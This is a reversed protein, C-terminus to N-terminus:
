LRSFLNLQSVRIFSQQAAELILTQQSLRTAAEAYDLDRLQSLVEKNVLDTDLHLERTSDLTNVRAGVKSVLDLVSTQANSLNDLTSATMAELEDRGENSGDYNAMVEKFRALTTLLGQRETSDIFFQDGPESTIGDVSTSGLMADIGLADAVAASGGSITLNRGDAISFGNQDVTIGLNALAQANGNAADNLVNSLELPTTINQDLVLTETHNGVTIRFVGNQVSFDGLNAASDAGFDISAPVASNGSVPSGIVRFSVGKLRIEDGSVYSQNQVIVRGTSREVATFNKGPPSIADDAQFSIVIDEPYFDDYEAQDYVVGVSIKAPPNSQNHASAATSVTNHVSKVDMFAKKGSDTASVFTNNAVKIRQQGEDGRYTFGTISNGEFPPQSSKYGGFIYDGNANKTNVLNLLEDIREEVESAMSQYENPTLTATNGAAVSLEQMRQIIRGVGNLISEELVLNNEAIDINKKYQETAFLEDTLQMIKTAAVPDDAPSLVRKGTSMQEQTKVVDTNVEALSQRAINFIQQSSIRM